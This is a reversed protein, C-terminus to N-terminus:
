RTILIKTALSEDGNADYMLVYYIGSSVKEGSANRGNWTFQGGVSTGEIILYGATDVIKIECGHTLGIISIVGNYSSKVPNPYAHVASEQLTLEPETADSMYSVIGESTGIFVEGRTKHIAISTIENSPLVSNEKTFHHLTEQGDASVLYIGNNKTGVWKRNAGDVQLASIPASAFLYDALGSGDNRSVKIQTFTGDNFFKDADDIVFLGNNTGVWIERNRDEAICYVQDITYDTDDQNTFTNIVLKTRDDATNFPTNNMKACFVGPVGQYSTVWLWGRADIILDVMTPFNAIDSYDLSVWNGDKKLIKVVKEANTNVVWLNGSTDFKVRPIRVYNLSSPVPSEIPSNKHNYHAVFKGNRFEYLGQGFSSAFYHGPETPDEDISCMNVYKVGTATKIEDEPFNTWEKSAYDLEMLTGPQFINDFYNLTGGAVLLKSDGIFTMYECLNRVPSNPIIYNEGDTFNNDTIKSEVIGKYGKCNWFKNGDAYLCKSESSITYTNYNTTSNVVAFIKEWGIYLTNNEEYSYKYAQTTSIPTSEITGNENVVCAGKKDIVCVLKNDKKNIALTKNSNINTWNSKDLLNDSLSGKLIGNETGIYINNNLTCTSYAKVGLNYTNTFELDALNLVVVGFDTNLYATKGSIDIGNINKNSLIKNKFDSINYVYDNSYLIDINANKYVIVLADIEKCYDIYAINFDSLSNLKDYTTISNDDKDYVFLSNSALVYIKDGAVRCSTADHFSTYIEWDGIGARSNIAIFLVLIIAFFRKIM